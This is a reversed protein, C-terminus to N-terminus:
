RWLSVIVAIVLLKLLWDGAHVAALKWPVNEHIVSGALLMAPFGVWLALALLLGDSWGATGLLGALGAVVAATVLSRVPEQALKWAPPRSSDAWAPSLPALMGGLATYYVSSLVFVAATAAVVALYNLDLM